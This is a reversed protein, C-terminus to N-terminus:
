KLAVIFLQPHSLNLDSIGIKLWVKWSNRLRIRKWFHFRLKKGLTSGIRSHLIIKLSFLSLWVVQLPSTRSNVYVRNDLVVKRLKVVSLVSWSCCVCIYRECVHILKFHSWDDLTLCKLVWWRFLSRILRRKFFCFSVRTWHLCLLWVLTPTMISIISWNSILDKSQLHWVWPWIISM